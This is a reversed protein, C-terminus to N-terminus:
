DNNQKSVPGPLQLRFRRQVFDVLRLLLSSSWLTGALIGWNMTMGFRNGVIGAGVGAGHREEPDLSEGPLQLQLALRPGQGTARLGRHQVRPRTTV